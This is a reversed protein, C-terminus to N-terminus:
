PSRGSMTGRTKMQILALNPLTKEFLEVSDDDNLLSVNKVKLISVSKRRVARRAGRRCEELIPGEGKRASWARGVGRYKGSVQSTQWPSAGAQQGGAEDVVRARTRKPGVPREM